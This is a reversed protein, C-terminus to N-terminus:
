KERATVRPHQPANYKAVLSEFTCSDAGGSVKAWAHKVMQLRNATMDCKLKDVFEAYTVQGDKNHDFFDYVTRLEQTALFVGLQSIFAAFELKNLQGSEDKDHELFISKLQELNDVGKAFLQNKVKNCIMELKNRWDAM